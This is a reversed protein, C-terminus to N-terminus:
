EPPNLRDRYHLLLVAGVIISVYQLPTLIVPNM